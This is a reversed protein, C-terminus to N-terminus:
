DLRFNVLLGVPGTGNVDPIGLVLGGFRLTAIKAILIEFLHYDPITTRQEQIEQEAAV